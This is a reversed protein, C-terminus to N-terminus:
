LRFKKIDNMKNRIGLQKQASECIEEIDEAHQAIGAELLTQLTFESSTVDFKQGTVKMVSAWHRSEVSPHSLSVLLPLVTKFDTVTKNLEKYAPWERLKRPMKLSRGELGELKETMTEIQSEADSWLIQYWAEVTDTVDSYLGYLKNLADLEKKTKILNPYETKKLAFLIEGGAYREYKREVLEYLKQSKVLRQQAEDPTIGNVMPGNSEYDSRFSIVEEGFLRIDNLLDTQFARQKENLEDQVEEAHDVMKTWSSRMTSRMDMEENSIFGDPLFFSLMRYMDLVPSMELDISSERDTNVPSVLPRLLHSSRPLGSTPPSSIISLSLTHVMFFTFIHLIQTNVTSLFINSPLSYYLTTSLLLSSYLTTSVLLSVLLSSYLATSVLRLFLFMWELFFVM